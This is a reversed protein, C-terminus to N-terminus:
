LLCAHSWKTSADILVMFYRFPGCSPHMPGCIDDKIRELFSPSEFVNKKQFLHDLLLNVKFTTVVYITM